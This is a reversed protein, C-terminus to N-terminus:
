TILSSLLGECVLRMRRGRWSLYFRSLTAIHLLCSVCQYAQCHTPLSQHIGPARQCSNWDLLSETEFLFSVVQPLVGLPPRQSEYLQSCMRVVGWCLCMYVCYVRRCCANTFEETQFESRSSSALWTFSKGKM